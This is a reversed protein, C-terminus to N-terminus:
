VGMQKFLALRVICDAPTRLFGTFAPPQTLSLLCFCGRKNQGQFLPQGIESYQQDEGFGLIGEHMEIPTNRCLSPLVAATMERTNNLRDKDNLCYHPDRRKALLYVM